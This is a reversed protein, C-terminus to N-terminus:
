AVESFLDQSRNALAGALNKAAQQFYSAKLEVGVFKRGM